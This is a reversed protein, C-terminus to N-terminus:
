RLSCGLCGKVAESPKGVALCAGELRKSGRCAALKLSFLDNILTDILTSPNDSGSKKNQARLREANEIADPLRDRLELFINKEGKQYNGLGALVRVDKVDKVVQDCISKGKSASYPKDTFTFHLLIWVEFCPISTIAIFGNAKATDVAEAYREHKDKDFVCFVRDYGSDRKKVENAKAVVSSPDSGCEGTVVVNSNSLKLHDRLSNFYNPETKKGECVVLIRDYSQRSGKTSRKFSSASRFRKDM